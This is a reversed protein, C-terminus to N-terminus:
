KLLAKWAADVVKAIIPAATMAAFIVPGVVSMLQSRSMTAISKGIPKPRDVPQGPQRSGEIKLAALLVEQNTISHGVQAAVADVKSGMGAFGTDVCTHLTMFMEGLQNFAEVRQEYTEDGTLPRFERPSEM